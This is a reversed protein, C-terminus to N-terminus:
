FNVRFFINPTFGLSYYDQVSYQPTLFDGIDAFKRELEKSIIEHRNYLNYVSFGIKYQWDDSGKFQYFGSFDLRHYDPLTESNYSAIEGSDNILSYPKGTHWFWGLALNFNRIKKYFSITLSHKTNSNLQFYEHDNIEDFRNQSDQFTYTAWARWSPASKQVLVDVGKTFGQGKHINLDYQNQFDFTFSTIGSITKYYLDLDLLWSGKKYILGTTFQNAKQIPYSDKASLVWVYNELSLDNAFDERIQSSVQSKREYSLQWIWEDTLHNQALFRPEFSHQQLQGFYNHRIGGQFDWKNFDYKFFSYGAYTVNYNHETGLIVGLNQNYSNFLHSIDNGFVQFGFDWHLKDHLQYGFNMELGSDIVRNLKKYGEFESESYQHMKEYDFDYASYFLTTKQQFRQSYKQSWNLSFGFNSIAMEQNNISSDPEETKFDLNNDIWLGTFSVETKDNPKFNLKASYDQFGFNNQKDFDGFNTNQFVKKALQDFTPSQLWETFSKRGSLQLGLKKKILPLQLYLDANLANIGANVKTKDSIKDSTKIDIVSSIREGFKPNTAKNYYNVTQEVNPNIASIMGFLHGPHYLRIGDWLILNQDPTSGRIHLGSATENPSKVGPLQQLTLLIDADTVGPLTEVKQPHLVVKQSTKNIGKALFGEVLVDDLAYAQLPQNEEMALSYFRNDIKIIKLTTQKEIEANIAELSYVSKPITIKKGTAISDVYSYKIDFKQEVDALVKALEQSNYGLTIKEGKQSWSIPIFVITIFLSILYKM